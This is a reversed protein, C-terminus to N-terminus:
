IWHMNIGFLDWMWGIYIGCGDMISGVYIWYQDWMRSLDCIGICNQECIVPEEWGCCKKAASHIGASKAIVRM